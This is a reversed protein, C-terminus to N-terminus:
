SGSPDSDSLILEACRMADCALTRVPLNDSSCLPAADVRLQAAADRLACFQRALGLQNELTRLAEEGKKITQRVAQRSIGLEAAIESLSLDEAYYLSLLTRTHEPLVNGYFDLLFVLSLDKEFM